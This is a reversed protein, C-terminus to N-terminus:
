RYKSWQNLVAQLMLSVSQQKWSYYFRGKINWWFMQTSDQKKFDADVACNNSRYTLFHSTHLVLSAQLHVINPLLITYYLVVSKTNKRYDSLQRHSVHKSRWESLFGLLPKVMHTLSRLPQWQQLPPFSWTQDAKQSTFDDGQFATHTHPTHTVTMLALSTYELSVINGSPSQIHQM